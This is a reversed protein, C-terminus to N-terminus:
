RLLGRVEGSEKMTWAPRIIICNKLMRLSAQGQDALSTSRFFSVQSTRAYCLKNCAQVEHDFSIHPQCNAREDVSRSELWSFCSITTYITLSGYYSYHLMALRM